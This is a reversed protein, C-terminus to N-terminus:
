GFMEPTLSITVVQYADHLPDINQKYELTCTLNNNSGEVSFDVFEIRDDWKSIAEKVSRKMSQAAQLDNPNFLMNPLNSGFTPQMVREGLRTLVIFLVSSKLIETDDKPDIVSPITTGWPLAIGKWFDSM